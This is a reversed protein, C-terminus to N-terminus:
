IRVRKLNRSFPTMVAFFGFGITGGGLMAHWIPNVTEAYDPNGTELRIRHIMDTQFLAYCAKVFVILKLLVAL